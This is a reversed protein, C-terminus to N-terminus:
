VVTPVIIGCHELIAQAEEVTFAAYEAYCKGNCAHCQERRGIAIDYGNADKKDTVEWIDLFGRGGCTGCIQQITNM